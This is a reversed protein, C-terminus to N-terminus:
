WLHKLKDELSVSTNDGAQSNDERVGVSPLKASATKVVLQTNAIARKYSEFAADSFGLIEDVQTELASGNIMGKKQMELALDYARRMKVRLKTKDEEAKKTKLGAELEAKIELAASGEKGTSTAEAVELMKKKIEDITEVKAGDNAPKNDVQTTTGGGKHAEDELGHTDPVVDYKKEEAAKLLAERRNRRALLAEVVLGDKATSACKNEKDHAMGCMGCDDAKGDLGYEKMEKEMDADVEEGATKVEEGSVEQALKLLAEVLASKKEKKKPKEDKDKKKEDKKKAKDEKADKEKDEEKDKGKKKGKQKDQFAKLGPPVKGAFSLIVEAEELLTKGENVADLALTNLEAKKAASFSASKELYGVVLALDDAVRDLDACVERGLNQISATLDAGLQEAEPADTKTEVSVDKVDGESSGTVETRIKDLADEMNGVLAMVENADVNVKEAEGGAAGDAKPAEPAELAPPMEPLAQAGKLLYAVKDFGQSRIAAMIEKGYVPSSLSQWGTAGTDTDVVKDLDEGYIEEATATILKEAGAFVEFTSAKKDYAGSANVVPTFKTRLTAKSLEARLHKKKEAEDGPFSGKDGGMNKDQHMQKDNMRIKNEGGGEPKYMVQGPKPETTGQWYATRRLQARQELDARLHKKKEAEDGPFSGDAGGMSKDQHMQKDNMRIKNEGGNEPKYMVQGPKPETTGQWYSKKYDSFTVDEGPHKTEAHVKAAQKDAVETNCLKCYTASATIVFSASKHKCHEECKECEECKKSDDACKECESAQKKLLAQRQAARLKLRAENMKLEEMASNGAITNTNNLTEKMKNMEKEIDQTQKLLLTLNEDIDATKKGGKAMLMVKSAYNGFQFRDSASGLEPGYNGGFDPKAENESPNVVKSVRDGTEQENAPMSVESGSDLGLDKDAGTQSTFQTTQSEPSTSIARNLDSLVDNLHNDHLEKNVSTMTNLFRSMNEEKKLDDINLESRMDDMQKFIAALDEANNKLGDVKDALDFYDKWTHTAPTEQASKIMTIHGSSNRVFQCSSDSCESFLRNLQTEVNKITSDLQALKTTEAQTKEELLTNRQDIYNNMSAVIQLVKAQPDAPTVVISLEIPNLDINVEAVVVGNIRQGKKFRICDCYDKETIASKQCLTCLAQGVATGMSVSTAYRSKIKHALDPYTASDLACLGVVRKYKDDWHTDIIIGRVGEVNSSEHNVCLPKGVWKRYAKKLEAEPFIDSNQNKYPDITPDSCSWKWKNDFGGTISAGTKDKKADGNTDILSAEAATIMIATFYTFDNSRPAIRKLQQALKIFRNTIEIDALAVEPKIDNELLIGEAVKLIAM